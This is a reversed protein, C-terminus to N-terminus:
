VDQWVQRKRPKLGFNNTKRHCKKCLTQGNNINWLEICSLAQEMNTIKYKRMISNFSKIHHTELNGGTQNCKQCTYNDRIFVDSRWKHYEFIDMIKNRLPSVGGKWNHHNKGSREPFKMGKSWSIQGKKFETQPSLRQGNQIHTRGTNTQISKDKNWTKHGVQFGGGLFIHLGKNWSSQGKIFRGNSDRGAM